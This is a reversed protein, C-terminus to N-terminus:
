TRSPLRFAELWFSRVRPQGSSAYCGDVADVASKDRPRSFVSNHRKVPRAELLKFAPEALAALVLWGMNSKSRTISRRPVCAVFHSLIARSDPMSAGSAMGIHTASMSKAAGGPTVSARAFM